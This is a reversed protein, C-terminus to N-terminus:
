LARFRFIQWHLGRRFKLEHDVELSSLRKAEGNRRAHQDGGILHDFLIGHRSKAWLPCQENCRVHGSEPTFRVHGALCRPAHFKARVKATIPRSSGPRM